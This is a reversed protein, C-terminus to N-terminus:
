LHTIDEGTTADYVFCDIGFYVIGEKTSFYYNFGAPPYVLPVYFNFNLLPKHHQEICKDWLEKTSLMSNLREDNEHIVEMGYPLEGEIQNIIKESIDFELIRTGSVFYWYFDLDYNRSAVLDKQQGMILYLAADDGIIAKAKSFCYTLNDLPNESIEYNELSFMGEVPEEKKCSVFMSFVSLIILLVPYSKKMNM